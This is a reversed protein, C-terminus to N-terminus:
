KTKSKSKKVEKLKGNYKFKIFEEGLKYINREVDDFEKIIDDFVEFLVDIPDYYKGKEIEETIMKIVIKRIKYDPRNLGSFKVKKNNQLHKNIIDGMTHTENNIELLMENKEMKNIKVEEEEYSEKIQEKASAIIDDKIEKIREKVIIAAKLLIEYEDMQGRSEITLEYIDKGKDVPPFVSCTSWLQGDKQIGMTATMHCKFSVDKNYKNPPSLEILLIESCKDLYKTDKEVGDEIYKIYEPTTIVQLISSTKNKANILMTINHENIEKKEKTPSIYIINSSVDFIPLNKLRQIMFDNDFVSINESIKINDEDFAYCPVLELMVKRLTNPVYLSYGNFQLILNSSILKNYERKSIQKIM